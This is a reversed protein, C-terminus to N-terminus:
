TTKWQHHVTIGYDWRVAITITMMVMTLLTMMLMTIADQWQDGAGGNWRGHFCFM